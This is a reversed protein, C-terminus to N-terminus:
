RRHKRRRRYPIGSGPTVLNLQGIKEELTMKKMLGDVFSKMGYIGSKAAPTQAFATLSVLMISILLIRKM